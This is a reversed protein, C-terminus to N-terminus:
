SNSLRVGCGFAATVANDLAVRNQPQVKGVVYFAFTIEDTNNPNMYGALGYTGDNWGTKARVAGAPVNPLRDKLTGTSQNIPLNDIVPQMNTTASNAIARFFEVEFKPTLRTQESLGSGDVLTIGRPDLGMNRIVQTVAPHIAEFTNGTGMKIAVLRGLAEAINNESDRLMYIVLQSLPESHVEALLKAGEKVSGSVKVNEKPIGLKAALAEGAVQAPKEARPSVKKLPDVRGGDIQFASIPAVYGDKLDNPNWSPHWDGDFLSNDVTLSSIPTQSLGTDGQYAAKTRDALEYIFSEVSSYYGWIGPALSSLTPDGGGVVVVEGPNEGAYVRTPIRYDPGLVHLAAAAVVVKVTSASPNETTGRRDYLVEGTRSNVAYGHFELADPHSDQARISCTRLPQAALPNEPAPQVQGLDRPPNDASIPRAAAVISSAGAGAFWGGTVALMACLVAILSVRWTAKPGTQARRSPKSDSM